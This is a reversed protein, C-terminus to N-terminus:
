RWPLVHQQLPSPCHFRRDSAAPPLWDHGQQGSAATCHMGCLQSIAATAEDTAAIWLHWRCACVWPYAGAEAMHLRHNPVRWCSSSMRSGSGLGCGSLKGELGEATRISTAGPKALEEPSPPRQEQAPEAHGAPLLGFAAAAAAAAAALRGLRAGGQQQAAQVAPRTSYSGACAAAGPALWRGWSALRMDTEDRSSIEAASDFAFTILALWAGESRNRLPDLLLQQCAMPCKTRDM